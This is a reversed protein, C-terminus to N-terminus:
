ENIQRKKKNHIKNVYDVANGKPVSVNFDYTLYMLTM